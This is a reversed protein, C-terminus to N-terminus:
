LAAAQLASHDLVAVARAPMPHAPLFLGSQLARSHAGRLPRPAPCDACVSAPACCREHQGRHRPGPEQQFRHVNAGRVTGSGLDPHTLGSRTTMAVHAHVRVRACM